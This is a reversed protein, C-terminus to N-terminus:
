AAWRLVHTVRSKKAAEIHEYELAVDQGIAAIHASELIQQVERLGGGGRATGVKVLLSRSRPDDIKAADLFMEVDKESLHDQVWFSATRSMLRAYQHGRAGRFLEELKENGLFCIGVETEDHWSRFEEIAELLLFNAEDVIILGGTGRIHEIIQASWEAKSRGVPRLRMAKMVQRIMDIVRGTTERCTIFWVSEGMCKKFYEAAYTKSSGPCMAGITIRGMQALHLLTLVNSATPTEVFDPKALLTDSRQAQSELKQKFAFVKKAIAMADGTYKGTGFAQLTSPAIQSLTSLKGWSKGTVKRYDAIWFIMDNVNVPIDTPDNM